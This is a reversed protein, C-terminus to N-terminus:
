DGNSLLCVFCSVLRISSDDSRHSADGNMSSRTEEGHKRSAGGWVEHVDYVPMPYIVAAPASQEPPPTPMRRPTPIIAETQDIGRNREQPIPVPMSGGLTNAEVATRFVETPEEVGQPGIVEDHVPPYFYSAAEGVPTAPQAPTAPQTPTTPQTPVLEQAVPVAVARETVAIEAPTETVVPEVQPEAVVAEVQPEPVIAEPTDTRVPRDTFYEVVPSEVIEEAPAEAVPVQQHEDSSEPQIFSPDRIVQPQPLEDPDDTFAGPGVAASDVLPPPVYGQPSTPALESEPTPVVLPSAVVPAQALPSHVPAPAPVPDGQSSEAERAPSEPIPSPITAQPDPTPPSLVSPTTNIGKISSKTSAADDRDSSSSRPAVLSSARRVVTGMRSWRSKAPSSM